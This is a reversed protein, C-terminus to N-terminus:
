IADVYAAITVASNNIMNSIGCSNLTVKIKKGVHQSQILNVPTQSFFSTWCKKLLSMWVAKLGALMHKVPHERGGDKLVANCCGCTKM